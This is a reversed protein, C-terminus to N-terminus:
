RTGLPLFVHDPAPDRPQHDCRGDHAPDPGLGRRIEDGERRGDVKRVRAIAAPADRRGHQRGQDTDLGAFAVVGVADHRRQAAHRLRGGVGLAAAARHQQRHALKLDLALHPEVDAADDQAAFARLRRGDHRGAHVSPRQDHDARPAHRRIRSDDGFNLDHGICRDSRRAKAQRRCLTERGAVRDNDTAGARRFPDRGEAHVGEDAPSRLAAQVPFRSRAIYDPLTTHDGHLSAADSQVRGQGHSQRRAVADRQASTNQRRPDALDPDLVQREHRAMIRRPGGVLIVAPGPDGDVPGLVDPDAINRELAKDARGNIQPRIAAPHRSLVHAGAAGHRLDAAQATAGEVRRTLLGQELAAGARVADVVEGHAM